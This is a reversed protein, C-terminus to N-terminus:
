FKPFPERAPKVTRALGYANFSVHMGEKQEVMSRLRERLMALMADHQGESM